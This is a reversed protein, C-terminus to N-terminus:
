DRARSLNWPTATWIHRLRDDTVFAKGASPEWIELLGGSDRAYVIAHTDGLVFLM